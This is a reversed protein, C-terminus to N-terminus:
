KCSTLNMIWISSSATRVQIAFIIRRRRGERERYVFMVDPGAIQEPFLFTPRSKENCVLYLWGKLGLGEGEIPRYGEPLAQFHDRRLGEGKELFFNEMGLNVNFRCDAGSIKYISDFVSLFERRQPLEQSSWCNVSYALGVEAADGLAGEHFQNAYLYDIVLPQLQQTEVLYEMVSDVVLREVLSVKVAEIGEGESTEVYGLAQEILVASDNSSLIRSRGLLDADFAMNYVDKLIQAQEPRRALNQLRRKIPARLIRKAEVAVDDIAQETMAGDMFYQELLKEVYYVSWRYRGRFSLSNQVIKGKNVQLNEIIDKKPPRKEEPFTNYYKRFKTYLLSDNFDRENAPIFVKNGSYTKQLFEEPTSSGYLLDLLEATRTRFVEEFISDETILTSCPLLGSVSLENWNKDSNDVVAKVKDFNLATGSLVARNSYGRRLAHILCALINTSGEVDAMEALDDQVEDFCWILNAVDGGVDAMEALDDQVKDFRRILNEVDTYLRLLRRNIGRMMSFVFIMAFSDREHRCSLQYRLWDQPTLKVEKKKYLDEVHYFLDKRSKVLSDCRVSLWESATWVGKSLLWPSRTTEFLHQTDKSAGMTRASYLAEGSELEVDKIAGSSLYFGFNNSLEDMLHHTKGSGAAALLYYCTFPKSRDVGIEENWSELSKHSVEAQISSGIMMEVAAGAEKQVTYSILQDFVLYLGQLLPTIGGGHGRYGWYSIWHSCLDDRFDYASWCEQMCNWDRQLIELFAATSAFKQHYSDKWIDLMEKFKPNCNQRQLELFQQSFFYNANVSAAWDAMRMFLTPDHGYIEWLPALYKVDQM